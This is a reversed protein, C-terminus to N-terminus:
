KLKETIQKINHKNQDLLKLKEMVENDINKLQQILYATEEMDNRAKENLLTMCNPCLTHTPAIDKQGCKICTQPKMKTKPKQKEGEIKIGHIKKYTEDVDRGALHIYVSPMDSGQAWGFWQCMQAETFGKRALDTARSHRFNTPTCKKTIEAEKKSREIADRIAAYRLRSYNAQQGNHSQLEIKTWLPTHPWQETKRLPHNQFWTRLYPESVYLNLRRTGTKGDILIEYGKTDNWAIDSADLKMFEGIREGTEWLHSIMAKDRTNHSNQILSLIENERLMESPKPKNLKSNTSKTSSIWSVKEPYKKAKPDGYELWKYFVRIAIRYDKETEPSKLDKCDYIWEVIDKLEDKDAQKLNTNNEEAIRKMHTTLKLIRAESYNSLKLDRMFDLIIEGNEETINPSAKINEQLNKISKKFNHFM